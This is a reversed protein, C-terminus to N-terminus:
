PRAAARWRGPSTQMCNRFARVFAPAHAYGLAASVEAVTLDTAALLHCAAVIRARATLNRLSTAEEGLRRQLTRVSLGLQQAVDHPASRGLLVDSRLMRQAWESVPMTPPPLERRMERLWAPDSGQLPRALWARDFLIQTLPADFRVPARFRDLWPAPRHPPRHALHVALPRWRSGCLEGLIGAGVSMGLDDILDVGPTAPDLVGYTLAALGHDLEVLTVAAARNHRSTHLMLTRLAAHVTAQRRIADGLRGWCSLDFAGGAQVALHPMGTAGVAATLLRGLDALRIRREPDDFLAPDLDLRRLLQPMEIGHCAMVPVLFAVPGIRMEDRALDREARM